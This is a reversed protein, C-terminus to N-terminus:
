SLSPLITLSFSCPYFGGTNARQLKCMENPRHMTHFCLKTISHGGHPNPENTVLQVKEKGKGKKKKKKRRKEKRKEKKKEEDVEIPQEPKIQAAWATMMHIPLPITTKAPFQRQYIV